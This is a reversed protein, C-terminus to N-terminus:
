RSRRIPTTRSISAATITSACSQCTRARTQSTRGIYRIEASIAHARVDGLVAVTRCATWVIRRVFALRGTPTDSINDLAKSTGKHRARRAHVAGVSTTCAVKGRTRVRTTTSGPIYQAVVARALATSSHIRACVTEISRVCARARSGETTRGAITSNGGNCTRIYIWQFTWVGTGNRTCRAITHHSRILTWNDFRTCIPLITTRVTATTRAQVRTWPIVRTGCFGRITTSTTDTRRRIFLANNFHRATRGSRRELAFATITDNSLFATGTAKCSRIATIRKSRDLTVVACTFHRLARAQFRVSTGTCSRETTYNIAATGLDRRQTRYCSVRGEGDDTSIALPYSINSVALGNVATGCSFGNPTLITRTGLIGRGGDDAAARLGGLARERHSTRFSFKQTRIALAERM